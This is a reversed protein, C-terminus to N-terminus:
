RTTAKKTVMKPGEETVVGVSVQANYNIAADKMQAPLSKPGSM